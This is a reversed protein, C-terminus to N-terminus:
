HRALDRGINEKMIETTGGVITQVRADAYARSIPYEDMYGYGGHMQLCADVVRKQLETAWWKAKAGRIADFQGENLALVSQELFARTIEVETVMEALRFRTNQFDAIRMGFAKREKIYALTWTIAAEAASLGRWAISLRELPLQATLHHFGRGEEGVLNRVPVRVDTFSIEATDQAHLGLKRLKRGRTFGATTTPVLILSLAPRGERTGTRAATLVVDSSFGSTIFTKAGNIVWEDGDRVATTKMARLDSGAGPESMAISTVVAGAAMGPLWHRKQEDTGLAMLYSGVIDENISFGSALAAAGVRALEEQVVCRFRYDDSGGGGNAEPFRIGLIGLAGAAKWVGRGTACAQEWADLNGSVERAVFDRVVDRFATHDPGYFPEPM